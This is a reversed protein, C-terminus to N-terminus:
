VTITAGYSRQRLLEIAFETATIGQFTAESNRESGTLILEFNRLVLACRALGRTPKTNYTTLNYLPGNTRGIPLSFEHRHTPWWRYRLARPICTAGPDLGGAADERGPHLVTSPNGAPPTLTPTDWKTLRTPPAKRCRSLFPHRLVGAFSSAGRAPRFPAQGREPRPAARRERGVRAGVCTRGGRM